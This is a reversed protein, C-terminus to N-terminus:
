IGLASEGTLWKCGPNTSSADAETTVQSDTPKAEPTSGVAFLSVVAEAPLHQCLSQAAADSSGSGGAATCAAVTTLVVCGAALVCVKAIRM